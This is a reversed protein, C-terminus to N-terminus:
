IFQQIQLKKKLKKIQFNLFFKRQFAGSFTTWYDKKGSHGHARDVDNRTIMARLVEWQM